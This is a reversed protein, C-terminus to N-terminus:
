QNLSKAWDDLGKGLVGSVVERNIHQLKQNAPDSLFDIYHDLEAISIDRYIYVYTLLMFREISERITDKISAIRQKIQAMDPASKPSKHKMTAYSAAAMVSEQLQLVQGTADSLQNIKKAREVRQKQKLLLPAQQQITQYAEASDGKLEAKTIKQGLDSRYWTLLRKADAQTLTSQMKQRFWAQIEEVQVYRDIDGIIRDVEQPTSNSTKQSVSLRVGKKLELPLNNIHQEIGSLRILAQLSTDSIKEALSQQSSFLLGALILLSKLLSELTTIRTM